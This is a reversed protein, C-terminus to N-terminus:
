FRMVAKVGYTGNIPNAIIMISQRQEEHKQM